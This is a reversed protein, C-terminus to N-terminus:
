LKVSSIYILDLMIPCAMLGLGSFVLVPSDSYTQPCGPSGLLLRDGCCLHVFVSSCFLTATQFYHRLYLVYQSHKQLGADYRCYNTGRAHASLVDQFLVDQRPSASLM